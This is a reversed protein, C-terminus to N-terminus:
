VAKGTANLKEVEDGIHERMGRLGDDKEHELMFSCMTGGTKIGRAHIQSVWYAWSQRQQAHTPDSTDIGWSQVGELKNGMDHEYLAVALMLSPSGLFYNCGTGDIFHKFMAVMDVRIQNRIVPLTETVYVPCGISDLAKFHDPVGAQWTKLYDWTHMEFWRAVSGVIHEFPKYANNLTWIETGECYKLMDIRREIATPGMGLITIKKGM